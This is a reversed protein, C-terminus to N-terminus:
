KETESVPSRRRPPLDADILANPNWGLQRCLDNSVSSGYCTMDHVFVWLVQNKYERRKRLRHHASRLVIDARDTLLEPATM